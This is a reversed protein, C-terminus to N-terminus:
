STSEEALLYHSRKQLFPKEIYRWSLMAFLSVTLVLLLLGGLPYKSLIGSAVFAQVIPFHWIYLGFSFDGYKGFNGLYKFFIAIYIVLYALFFPFFFWIHHIPYTALYLLSLLLYYSAYRKFHAYYYYLIAGSVFFSLQGPIQKALLAFINRHEEGTSLGTMLEFYAISLVYFFILTYLKNFRSFFLAILPISLYFMVEIKITWLSANVAPTAHDMFLGPLTPHIFNLTSLNSLLYKLFDISFYQSLEYTSFYSFAFATVIIVTSYAPFIRYFRKKFFQRISKTNDFSMFILFGSIVFFAYVAYTANIHETLFLFLTNQTLLATHSIFVVLALLLRILDFNNSMLRADYTM